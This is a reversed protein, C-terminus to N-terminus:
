FSVFVPWRNNKFTENYHARAAENGTKRALSGFAAPMSLGSSLTAGSLPIPKGGSWATIMQKGKLDAVLQAQISDNAKKTQDAIEEVNNIEVAVGGTVGVSKKGLDASGELSLTVKGIETFNYTAIHANISNTAIRSVADDLLADVEPSVFARSTNGNADEHTTRWEYDLTLKVTEGNGSATMESDVLTGTFTTGDVTVTVEPPPTPEQAEQAPPAEEEGASWSSWGEGTIYDGSNACFQGCANTTVSLLGLPDTFKYPSNLVYSYRNFTQPNRITASATLPDVSTFRGHKSNYYRAQAYDLGSEDDREYGTYQKNIGDELGYGHAPLRGATAPAVEDGFAMYDHRSVVKGERDTVVRPSGLHDATLFSLRAKEPMTNSYEAVLLGLANYVFITEVVGGVVKRVRRGEGDYQYVADPTRSTNTPSFFGVQMNEANYVFRRNEADLTLNGAKDYDYDAISDGDQFKKLRNDSSNILPNTVKWSVAQDLTTTGAADFRRNGFRDYSFTQKWSQTGGGYTETASQLRNLDDYAYSQVIQGPLGGYSIKQERLAGNNQAAGGYDYDLRLLGSDEASSGLGIRTVQLRENYHATEWLGNGLRLSEIGGASNYSVQDLYLQADKEDPRQGRVSELLGDQDYRTTVVRGSPYTESVLAGSLNYAYSSTYPRELGTRQGATTLQESALLRGLNDFSTYRTESVSSSVKTMKGLTFEPAAELGTGDYFFSVDPTADSYNRYILRNLKDYAATVSINRADTTSVVNGGDDYEYKVSWENNNSVADANPLALAPNPEQEPQKARLLRGLSDYSFYRSQEGQTTKRLNGLTDFLYDTSLDTGGPDEVVRIMRGLADTFGRRKKGAQDTVTKSVGIAGSLSVGYATKVRAGGPLIVEVVRSAEDYVNTTWQRTEGARFPNTLRKVRGDADFEKEVFVNGRADMQEKKYARGLGDLYTTVEAYHDEDIQTRIKVWTNNPEDNYFNETTTGVQQNAHYLSVKKVRLTAPDYETRTELGNANRVTLPLGTVPDFTTSAVFGAQSGHPLQDPNQSPNPDPAPTTVRVPFAHHTADYETVTSGGKADISEVQNGHADFRARTAIYASPNDHGGKTSDWVRATTPNGRYAPSADGEDYKTESRSVVAGAGNRVVSVTPLGVLNLNKYTNRVDPSPYNVEDYILYTTEMIRVPNPPVPTPVPTPNPDPPGDPLLSNAAPIPLFAYQTSRKTLLPTEIQGLDGEYEHRATSSLANGDEDYIITEEQTVRPHWDKTRYGYNPFSTKAWHTLKRTLLRGASSFSREEYTMGSLINDYGWTGRSPTCNTCSDYGRHLLRQTFTDDPATITVMYGYNGVLMAGYTWQLYNGGASEYVKRTAVGRNIKWHVSSASNSSGTDGLPPVVGYTFHEEGGTPYRVQEIEGYINYKFLYSEGTPLEVSTLVVPNFPSGSTDIVWNEWDSPFLVYTYQLQQNFDGLGSEEPTAGKLKKWHFKFIGTMGPMRYEQVAPAGPAEPKFPVPINRGLTDKWYGNPHTVGNSDVSGPPHFTTFNGNRDTFRDAKRITALGLRDRAGSFDYFSGDPMLLRYLGSAADEVYRVNSGDVAYFTANWNFPPLQGGPYMVPTDSARLEHSEGSPLHVTLRKIYGNYYPTPQNAPCIVESVPFGNEDFLNDEGTYEIYPVALSTTWGSASNEAYRARNKTICSGPNNGRPDSHDYEM